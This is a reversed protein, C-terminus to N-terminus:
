GAAEEGAQQTNITVNVPTQATVTTSSTAADSEDEKKGSGRLKVLKNLLDFWFPAGLSVAFALLLFGLIRKPSTTTQCIIYKIKCFTGTNKGYDGWGIALINNTSDIEHKMMNNISDIKQKYNNFVIVNNQVSIKNTDNVITGDQLTRKRVRPDDKYKDVAQISLQMLKDRANKDTSLKGAIQIIDVNFTIALFLGIIFLIMQTQRKYWGGARKMSDNFWEEIKEIFKEINYISNQLHMQLIQITEADIVPNKLDGTRNCYFDEYYNFLEKLQV